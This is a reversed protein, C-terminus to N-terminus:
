TGSVPTGRWAQERGKPWNAQFLRVRAPLRLKVQLCSVSFASIELNGFDDGDQGAVPLRDRPESIGRGGSTGGEGGVCRPRRGCRVRCSRGGVVALVAARGSLRKMLHKM